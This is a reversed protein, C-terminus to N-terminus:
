HAFGTVTIRLCNSQCKNNHTRNFTFHIPRDTNDYDLRPAAPALHLEGGRFRTPHDERQRTNHYARVRATPAAHILDLGWNTRWSQDVLLPTVAVSRSEQQGHGAVIEITTPDILLPERKGNAAGRRAHGTIQFEIIDSTEWCLRM